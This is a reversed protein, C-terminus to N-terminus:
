GRAERLWRSARVRYVLPGPEGTGTSASSRRSPSQPCAQPETPQWRLWPLRTRKPSRSMTRLRTTSLLALVPDKPESEAALLAREAQEESWRPLHQLVKEKATMSHIAAGM